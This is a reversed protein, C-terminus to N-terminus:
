AHAAMWDQFRARDRALEGWQRYFENDRMYYGHAYSPRAGGPAHVVATVVWSPLRVGPARPDLTDTIEEVTVISRSAALVAEKQVGTVGWLLVNGAHDAQQAHIVAVDPRIARVAALTEGTFPCTITAVSATRDILDTGAYGRLVAFPLNAAGAAFAAALGAHSHEELELPHPWGHEVADRFRPLLGLGPNGAWSFVLKRVCGAGILQDAVLDASLRIITLDRRQQRIIARTAAFPVLHSFGELAIADGDHILDRVAEDLTTIAAM